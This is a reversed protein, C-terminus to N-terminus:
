NAYAEIEALGPGDSEATLVIVRISTVGSVAPSVVHDVDGNPETGRTATVDATHLVNSAGDLLQVRATLVDYGTDFDRNGFLKVRGITRSVDLALDVRITESPCTGSPCAGSAAYWSTNVDGDNAQSAPYGSSYTSTASATACFAFNGNPPVCPGADVDAAGGDNADAGTGTDSAGDTSAADTSASDTGGGDNPNADTGTADTTKVDSASDKGGGDSTTAADNGTQSGDSSASGDKKTSSDSTAGGDDPAPGAAEDTVACAILLSAIGLSLLVIKRM